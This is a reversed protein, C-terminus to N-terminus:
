ITNPKLNKIFEQFGRDRVTGTDNKKGKLVAEVYRLDLKGAKVSYNLALITNEEGYEGVLEDLMQLQLPTAFRGNTFNQVFISRATDERSGNKENKENKWEQPTNVPHEDTTRENNMRQEHQQEDMQYEDWNNVTILSFQNSRELEIQHENKFINLIRHVTGRSVGTWKELQKEGCTLQGPTLYRRKGKWVISKMEDARKRIWKGKVLKMGHEAEILLETWVARYNPRKM